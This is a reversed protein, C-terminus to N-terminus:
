YTRVVDRQGRPACFDSSTLRADPAYLKAIARADHANFAAFMAEVVETPARLTAMALILAAVSIPSM